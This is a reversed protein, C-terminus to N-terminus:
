AGACGSVRAVGGVVIEANETLDMLGSAGPCPTEQEM